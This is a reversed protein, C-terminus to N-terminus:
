RSTVETGRVTHYLHGFREMVSSWYVDQGVSQSPSDYGHTSVVPTSSNSFEDTNDQQVGM